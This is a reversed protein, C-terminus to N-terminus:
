SRAFAAAARERDAADNVASIACIAAAGTAYVAQAQAIAIGGIAVIPVSCAAVAARLGELGQVADPNEKTSTAFVPGFGLYDAGADCAARVQDLDHTSVGVPPARTAPRASRPRRSSAAAAQKMEACRTPSRWRCTPTCSRRPRCVNRAAARGITQILSRESRLFGEKDADLIAVLSVEPLDLGERLLNIGVLV